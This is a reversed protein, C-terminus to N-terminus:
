FDWVKFGLSEAKSLDTKPIQYVNAVGSALGCVQARLLSDNRKESAFIQMGSLEKAMAELDIGQNNCQVSGDYKYVWVKQSENKQQPPLLAEEPSVVKQSLIGESQRRCTTHTCAVIWVLVVGPFIRLFKKDM